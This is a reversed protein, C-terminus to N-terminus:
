VVECAETFKALVLEAIGFARNRGEFRGQFEIGLTQDCVLTYRPDCLGRTIWVIEQRGVPVKWWLRQAPPLYATM